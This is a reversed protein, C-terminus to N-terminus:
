HPHLCHFYFEKHDWISSYVWIPKLTDAGFWGLSCTSRSVLVHKLKLFAQFLVHGELLSGKPQEMCWWIRKALAMCLLICVRGVMINHEGTKGVNSGMPDLATRLTSGRSKLMGALPGLSEIGQLKSLNFVFKGPFVGYRWIYSFFMFVWTSCVPAAWMAAGPKLNLVQYLMNAFGVDSM